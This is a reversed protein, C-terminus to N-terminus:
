EGPVKFFYSNLHSKSFTAVYISSLFHVVYIIISSYFIGSFAWFKSFTSCLFEQPTSFGPFHGPSLFHVVYVTATSYFIGSFAWSKLFASWFFFKKKELNWGMAGKFAGMSLSSSFYREIAWFARKTYLRVNRSVRALLFDRSIINLSYLIGPFSIWHTSFGPFHYETLLIGGKQYFRM